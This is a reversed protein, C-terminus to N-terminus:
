IEPDGTTRIGGAPRWLAPCKDHVGYNLDTDTLETFSMVADVVMDPFGGRSPAQVNLDGVVLAGGRWGRLVNVLTHM